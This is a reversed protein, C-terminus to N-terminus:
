KELFVEGLGMTTVLDDVFVTDFDAVTAHIVHVVDNSFM